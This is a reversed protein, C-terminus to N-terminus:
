CRFGEMAECVRDWRGAWAPGVGAIEIRRAGDLQAVLQAELDTDDRGADAVADPDPELRVVLHDGFIRHQSIGLDDGFRPVGRARVLHAREGVETFTAAEVKFWLQPAM